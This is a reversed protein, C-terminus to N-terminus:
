EEKVDKHVVDLTDLRRFFLENFGLRHMLEEVVANATHVNLIGELRRLKERNKDSIAITTSM